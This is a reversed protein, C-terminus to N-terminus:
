YPLQRQPLGAETLSGKDMSKHTVVTSESIQWPPSQDLQNKQDKRRLFPGIVKGIAPRQEVIVFVQSVVKVEELQQVLIM